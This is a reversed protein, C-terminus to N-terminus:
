DCDAIYDARNACRQVLLATTFVADISCYTTQMVRIVVTHQHQVQPWQQFAERCVTFLLGKRDQRYIVMM